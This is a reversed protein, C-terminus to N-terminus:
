KPIIGLIQFYKFKKKPIIGLNKYGTLKILKELYLLKAVFSAIKVFIYSFRFKGYFVDKAHYKCNVNNRKYLCM